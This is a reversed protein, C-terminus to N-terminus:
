VEIRNFLVSSLWLVALCVCSLVALDVPLSYHTVGTLAGRLGDVGYSLPDVAAVVRMPGPATDLPFLAGSLFFLPMVLFNMVAQFGQFDNMVSAIASGLATFLMAILVMFAFALPLTTWSAFRLGFLLTIGLVILGQGVAVTSGGLTRGLMVTWRPVPAVLTEKIFGFQRDWILEMGSFVSSFLVTMSIVGPALFQIASGQGARQFVPGLGYGLAVLFLLPQGLSGAIRAPSRSFRLLQRLWMIHIVGLM